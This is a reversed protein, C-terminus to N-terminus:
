VLTKGKIKENLLLVWLHDSVRSKLREFVKSRPRPREAELTMLRFLDDEASIPLDKLFAALKNTNSLFPALRDRDKQPIPPAPSTM